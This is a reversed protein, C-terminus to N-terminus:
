EELKQETSAQTTQRQRHNKARQLCPPIALFKCSGERFAQKEYFSFLVLFAGPSRGSFCGARAPGRTANCLECGM